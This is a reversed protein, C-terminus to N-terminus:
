DEDNIDLDPPLPENKWDDIQQKLKQLQEFYLGFQDQNILFQEGDHIARIRGELVYKEVQEIPMGLQEATEGITIYM